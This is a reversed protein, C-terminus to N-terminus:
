MPAEVRDAVSALRSTSGSRDGPRLQAAHDADRDTLVAIVPYGGTVPHDALFILPQGSAPVQVAGRVLGESPLEDASGGPWHAARWGSRSGTPTPVSRGPSSCCLRDLGADTFWDRRPGPSRAPDQAAPEAPGPRRRPPPPRSARGAAGAGAHLPAPGLGSLLDTSRSGLTPQSRSAAASPSITASGTRRPSARDAPRRAAAAISATRGPRRPRQGARRDARRDGRGLATPRPESSWAASCASSRPPPRRTASWGTPWGSRPGTPRARPRSASIPWDPGASTRSSHRAARDARRHDDPRGRRVPGTAPSSCPRHTATSTGCAPTPAHRDAALRGTRIAPYVGSWADALGVAGAPVRPGRTPGPPARPAPRTEGDLYAFGPAFGCFAVTWVQGTHDAVVDDPSLGSCSPSRPSIPAPTTWRSRHGDDARRDLRLPGPLDLLDSASAPPCRRSRAPAAPNARRARGRRDRSSRAAAIAPRLRRTDRGPRRLGAPRRRSATRRAAPPDDATRSSPTLSVGAGDLAARVTRAMAVAGPTDGHTCMSDAM